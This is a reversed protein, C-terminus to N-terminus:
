GKLSYGAVGHEIDQSLREKAKDRRQQWIDTLAENTNKKCQYETEKDSIPELQQDQQEHLQDIDVQKLEDVLVSILQKVQGAASTIAAAIDAAKDGTPKTLSIMSAICINGIYLSGVYSEFRDWGSATDMSSMSAESSLNTNIQNSMRNWNNELRSEAKQFLEQMKAVRKTYKDLQDNLRIGTRECLNYQNEARQYEYQLLLFGM